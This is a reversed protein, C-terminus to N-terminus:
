HGDNITNEFARVAATTAVNEAAFQEILAAGEPTAAAQRMLQNIFLM